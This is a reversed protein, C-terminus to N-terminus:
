RASTNGCSLAASISRILFLPLNIAMTPSPIFSEGTAPTFTATGDSYMFYGETVGTPVGSGSALVTEAIYMGTPLATADDGVIATEKTGKNLYGNIYTLQKTM